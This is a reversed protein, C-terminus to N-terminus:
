NVSAFPFPKLNSIVLSFSFFTAELVSYNSNTLGKFLNVFIFKANSPTISTKLICRLFKLSYHFSGIHCLTHGTNTSTNIVSWNIMKPCMSTHSTNNVYTRNMHLTLVLSQHNYENKYNSDNDSFILRSSDTLIWSELRKICKKNNGSDVQRPATWLQKRPRYKNKNKWM